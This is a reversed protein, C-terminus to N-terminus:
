GRKTEIKKLLFEEVETMFKIKEQINGISHVKERFLQQCKQFLKEIDEEKM